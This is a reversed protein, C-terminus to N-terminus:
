ANINNSSRHIKTINESRSITNLHQLGMPWKNVAWMCICSMDFYFLAFFTLRLYIQRNVITFFFLEFDKQGLSILSYVTVPLGLKNVSLEAHETHLHSVM